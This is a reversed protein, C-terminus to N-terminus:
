SECNQKWTQLYWLPLWFGYSYLPWFSLGSATQDTWVDNSLQTTGWKWKLFRYIMKFNFPQLCLVYNKNPNTNSKLKSHSIKTSWQKDNQKTRKGKNEHQRDKSKRSRIVAKTDNRRILTGLEKTFELFITRPMDQINCFAYWM